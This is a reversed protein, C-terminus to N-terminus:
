LRIQIPSGQPWRGFRIFSSWFTDTMDVFCDNFSCANVTQSTRHESSLLRFPWTWIEILLNLVTQLEVFLYISPWWFISIYVFLPVSSFLSYVLGSTQDWSPFLIQIQKSPFHYCTKLKRRRSHYETYKWSLIFVSAARLESNEGPLKPHTHSFSNCLHGSVLLHLVKDKSCVVAPQAEAPHPQLKLWLKSEKNQINVGWFVWLFHGRALFPSFM